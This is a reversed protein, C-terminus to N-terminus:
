FCTQYKVFNWACGERVMVENVPKGGVFAVGIVRGYRHKWHTEIRVEKGFSCIRWRRDGRSHFTRGGKLLTSTAQLRVKIHM